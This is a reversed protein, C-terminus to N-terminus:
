GRPSVIIFRLVEDLMNLEKNITALVSKDEVNFKVLLYRGQMKHKIPYALTKLGWMDESEVKVGNEDLVALFRKKASDKKDPDLIVLLEYLNEKNKKDKKM